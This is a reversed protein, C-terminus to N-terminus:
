PQQPYAYGSPCSPEEVWPDVVRGHFLFLDNTAQPAGENGGSRRMIQDMSARITQVVPDGHFADEAQSRACALDSVGSACKRLTVRPAAYSTIHHQGCWAPEATCAGTEPNCKHHYTVAECWSSTTGDAPHYQERRNAWGEKKYTRYNRNAIWKYLRSSKWKGLIAKRVLYDFNREPSDEYHGPNSGNWCEYTDSAILSYNTQMGPQLWYHYMDWHAPATVEHKAHIFDAGIALLVNYAPALEYASQMDPSNIRGEMDARLFEMDGLARLWLERADEKEEANSLDLTRIQRFLGAIGAVRSVLPLNSSFRLWEELELQAQDLRELILPGYDHEGGFIEAGISFIEYMVLFAEVMTMVTAPEAKAAKPTAVSGLSIAATCALAIAVHRKARVNHKPKHITDIM